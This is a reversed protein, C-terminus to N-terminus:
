NVKATMKKACAKAGVRNTINSKLRKPIPLEPLVEHELKRKPQVTEVILVNGEPAKKRLAELLKTLDDQLIM